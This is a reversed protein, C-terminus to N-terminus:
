RNHNLWRRALAILGAADVSGQERYPLVALAAGAGQRFEGNGGRTDLFDLWDDGSMCAVGAEPYRAMAHRRLLGALARALEVGDGTAAHRREILALQRRIQARPHREWLRWALLALGALALLALLAAPLLSAGANGPTGIPLHIDRLQSLLEQPTNM